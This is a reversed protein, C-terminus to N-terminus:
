GNKNYEDHGQELIAMLEAYFDFDDDVSGGDIAEGIHEQKEVLRRCMRTEITDVAVFYNIFVPRDQSIRHIRDTAQKIDGPRHAWEVLGMESAATLTLGVGAAQINGIFLRTSPDKQFADVSLQRMKASTQGDITVSKFPIRRQLVEIAKRHTAMLVLKEDTETLFQTAWRVVERM